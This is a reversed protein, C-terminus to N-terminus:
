PYSCSEVLLGDPDQGDAQWQDWSEITPDRWWSGASSLVSYTNGSFQNNRSGLTAGNAGTYGSCMYISNNQIQNNWMVGSTDADSAPLPIVCQIPSPLLMGTHSAQFILQVGYGGNDHLLNDHFYGNNSDNVSIGAGVIDTNKLPTGNHDFESGSIEIECSIEHFYGSRENDHFHSNEVAVYQNHIDTWFGDGINHHSDLGSLWLGPDSPTGQSLVFKAAGAGWYGGPRGPQVDCPTGSGTTSIRRYNAINNWSVESDQITIWSGGSAIGYRGNNTILMRNYLVRQSETGGGGSIGSVHAFRVTLDQFTWSRANHADIADFLAKEVFLNELTVNVAHSGNPASNCTVIAPSAAILVALVALDISADSPDQDIYIQQNGYDFFFRGVEGDNPAQGPPLPAAGTLQDLSLVRMMRQDNYFVDDEYTSVQYCADVGPSIPTCQNPQSPLTAWAGSYVWVGPSAAQWDTLVQAGSIRADGDVGIWTQGSKAILTSTVRHEGYICLTAGPPAADVIANIDDEPHIEIGDSPCSYDLKGAGPTPADLRTGFAKPKSDSAGPSTSGATCASFALGVSILLILKLM